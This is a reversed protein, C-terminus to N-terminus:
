SQITGDDSNCVAQVTAMALICWFEGNGSWFDFSFKRSLSVAGEM